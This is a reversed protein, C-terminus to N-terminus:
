DEVPTERAFKGMDGDPIYTAFKERAEGSMDKDIRRLRKVLVKTYYQRDINQYINEIVQGLPIPEKQPPEVEFDTTNKFYDILTGDFCDFITFHDKNIDACLRTGRGLM